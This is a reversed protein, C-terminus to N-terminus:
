SKFFILTNHQLNWLGWGQLLLHVVFPVDISAL